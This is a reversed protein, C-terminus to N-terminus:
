RKKRAESIAVHERESMKLHDLVIGINKANTADPREDELAQMTRAIEQLIDNHEELRTLDRTDRPKGSFEARYANFQKNAEEGLSGALQGISASARATRIKEIEGRHHAIRDAVKAINGDNTDTRVGMERVHVMGTHVAELAGLLRQLLALRRTARPKGEFHRRYLAFQQNALTAYVRAQETPALAARAAPIAALEETFLRLNAEMQGKQATLRPDDIAPLAAIWGRLEGAMEALLALDRTPRQKGAYDRVYRSFTIESWEVLRWAAIAVPGGAQIAAIEARETRYLALREGLTSRLAAAGTDASLRETDRIIADLQALDRTARPRGVFGKRYRDHIAEAQTTSM